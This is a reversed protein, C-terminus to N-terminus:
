SGAISRALGRTRTEVIPTEEESQRWPPSLESEERAAPTVAATPRAAAIVAPTAAPRAAAENAKVAEPGVKCHGIFTAGETVILTAATIDGHVRAHATLRLQERARVNGHVQGDIVIRAGELEATCVASEAVQLEGGASIRGEFRGLIRAGGQFQMEGKIHTDAGIVTMETTNKDTM